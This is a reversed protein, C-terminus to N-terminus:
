ARRLTNRLGEYDREEESTGQIDPNNGELTNRLGEYDREEEPTGQIDPNNGEL